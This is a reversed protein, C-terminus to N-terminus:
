QNQKNQDKYDEIQVKLKTQNKTRSPSGCLQGRKFVGDSIILSVKYLGM